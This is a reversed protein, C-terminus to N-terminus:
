SVVALWLWGEVVDDVKGGGKKVFLMSTPVNYLISLFVVNAAFYWFRYVWKRQM